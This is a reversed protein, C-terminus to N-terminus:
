EISKRALAESDSNSQVPRMPQKPEFDHQTGMIRVEIDSATYKIIEIEYTSTSHYNKYHKSRGVNLDNYLDMDVIKFYTLAGNVSNTMVRTDEYTKKCVVKYLCNNKNFFYQAEFGDYYATLPRKGKPLEKKAPLSDLQAIVYEYHSNFPMFMINQATIVQLSVVLFVVYTILNRM